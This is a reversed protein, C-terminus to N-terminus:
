RKGGIIYGISINFNNNAKEQLKLDATIRIRKFFQVGLRPMFCFASKSNGGTISHWPSITDDIGIPSATNLSAIGLGAGAFFSIYKYQKFKYDGVIMYNYSRFEEDGAYDSNRFFNTMGVLVGINMPIREFAFRLEASLSGGTEIRDFCLKSLGFPIGIELEGEIHGFRGSKEIDQGWLCNSCLITSIIILIIYKKM